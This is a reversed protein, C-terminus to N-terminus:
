IVRLKELWDFLYLEYILNSLGHLLIVLVLDDSRKYIYGFILSPFIVLVGTFWSITVAHALSFLVSSIIIASFGNGLRNQLYGRFFWEEPLAALLLTTLAFLWSGADFSVLVFVIFLYSSCFFVTKRTIKLRLNDVSWSTDFLPLFLMYAVLIIIYDSDKVLWSLGLLGAAIYIFQYKKQWIKNM